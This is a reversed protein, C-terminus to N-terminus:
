RGRAEENESKEKRDGRYAESHFVKACIEAHAMSVDDRFTFYRGNLAAYISHVNGIYPESIKFSSAGGDVGPVWGRPPLINLMEEFHEGSIEEPETRAANEQRKFAEQMSIVVLEDDASERCRAIAEEPLEGADVDDLLRHTRTCYVCRAELDKVRGNHGARALTGM